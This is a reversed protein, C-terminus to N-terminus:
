EKINLKELIAATKEDAKRKITVGLATLLLAGGLGAGLWQWPFRSKAAKQNALAQVDTETDSHVTHRTTSSAMRVRM